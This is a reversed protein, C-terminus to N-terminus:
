TLEADVTYSFSGFGAYGPTAGSVTFQPAFGNVKANAASLTAGTGLAAQLVISTTSVTSPVARMVAPFAIFPSVTSTAVSANMAIVSVSSKFYYTFCNMEHQARSLFEFPGAYTGPELQLGAIYWDNSASDSLNVQGVAKNATVTAAWSTALTGSTYNSGAALWFNLHMSTNNDNDITGSTDGAFTITKFEWTNASNITYSAAIHRSNDDDIFEAIYTGTKASRTWFQVTTSEASGTGKKLHQLDRV